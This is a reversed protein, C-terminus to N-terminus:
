CEKAKVQCAGHIPCVWEYYTSAHSRFTELGINADVLVKMVLSVNIDTADVLTNILDCVCLNVKEDGNANVNNKRYHSSIDHCVKEISPKSGYENDFVKEKTKSEICIAKWTSVSVHTIETFYKESEESAALLSLLHERSTISVYRKLLNTYAMNSAENKRKGVGMAMIVKNNNRIMKLKFAFHKTYQDQSDVSEIISGERLAVDNMINKTSRSLMSEFSTIDTDTCTSEIAGYDDSTNTRLEVQNCAASLQSHFNSVIVMIDTIGDYNDAMQMARSSEVNIFNEVFALLGNIKNRFNLSQNEINGTYTHDETILDPIMIHNDIDNHSDLEMPTCKIEANDNIPILSEEILSTSLLEANNYEEAELQLLTTSDLNNPKSVISRERQPKMVEPTLVEDNKVNNDSESMNALILRVKFLENALLKPSKKEAKMSRKNVGPGILAQVRDLPKNMKFIPIPQGVKTNEAINYYENTFLNPIPIITINYNKELQALAVLLAKEGIDDLLIFAIENHTQRILTFEQLEKSIKIPPQETTVKTTLISVQYAM